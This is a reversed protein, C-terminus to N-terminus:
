GYIRKEKRVKKLFKIYNRDRYKAKKIHFKKDLKYFGTENFIAQVELDVRKDLRLIMFSLNDLILPPLDKKDSYGLVM